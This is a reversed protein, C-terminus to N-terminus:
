TLLRLYLASLATAMATLTHPEAAARAALRLTQRGNETERRALWDKLATQYGPVDLADRVWGNQGETIWEATGCGTSTLLPLGCALAEVCANPFPDYLTPLFFADAAGYV